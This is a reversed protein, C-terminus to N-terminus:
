LSKWYVLSLKLEYFIDFHRVSQGTAVDHVSVLLGTAGDVRFALAASAIDITAEQVHEHRAVASWAGGDADVSVNLARYGMAPVDIVFALVATADGTLEDDYLTM